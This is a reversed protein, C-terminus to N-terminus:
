IVIFGHLWLSITYIVIAIVIVTLDNKKTAKKTATQKVDLLSFWQLIAFLAFAGFFIVGAVTGTMLIHCLAWLLVGALMPHSLSQKLTCPYYAAIVMIYALPMLSLTLVAGWTPPIWLAETSAQMKGTIMMALGCLSLLAFLAKYTGEGLTAIMKDRTHTVRPLLHTAIFLVIGTVLIEM